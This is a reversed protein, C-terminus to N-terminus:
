FIEEECKLVKNLFSNDSCQSRAQRHEKYAFCVLSGTFHWTAKRWDWREERIVSSSKYNKKFPARMLDILGIIFTVKAHFMRTSIIKKGHLVVVYFLPKESYNKILFCVCWTLLLLNFHSIILNRVVFHQDHVFFFLLKNNRHFLYTFIIKSFAAFMINKHDKTSHPPQLKLASIFFSCWAESRKLVSLIGFCFPKAATIRQPFKYKKKRLERCAPNSPILYLLM